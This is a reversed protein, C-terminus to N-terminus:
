PEAALHILKLERNNSKYRPPQPGKYYKTAKPKVEFRQPIGIQKRFVLFASQHFQLQDLHLSVVSRLFGTRM